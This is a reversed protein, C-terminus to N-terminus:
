DPRLPSKPAWGVCQMGKNFATKRAISVSFDEESDQAEAEQVISSVPQPFRSM